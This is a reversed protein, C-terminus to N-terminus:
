PEKEVNWEWGRLDELPEGPSALDEFAQQPGVVEGELGAPRREIEGGRGTLEGSGATRRTRQAEVIPLDPGFWHRDCDVGGVVGLRGGVRRNLLETGLKPTVETVGLRHNETDVPEVVGLSD